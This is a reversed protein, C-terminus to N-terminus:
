PVIVGKVGYIAGIFPLKLKQYVLIEEGLKLSKNIFVKIGEYEFNHFANKAPIKKSIEVSLNQIQSGNSGWGGCTTTILNIIFNSNKEKAIKLAKEDIKIM